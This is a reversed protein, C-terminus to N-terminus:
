RKRRSWNDIARELPRRFPEMVRSYDQPRTANPFNPSYSTNSFEDRQLYVRPKNQSMSNIAEGIGRFLLALPIGVVILIPLWCFLFKIFAIALHKLLFRIIKRFSECAKKIESSLFTTM